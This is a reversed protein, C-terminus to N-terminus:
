TPGCSEGFAGKPLVWPDMFVPRDFIRSNALEVWFPDCDYAQGENALETVPKTRDITM